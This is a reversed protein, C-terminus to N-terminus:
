GREKIATAAATQGQTVSQAVSAMPMPLEPLHAMDGAAYVGPVSTHGFPDVRVCGSGNLELGLQEAFPARQSMMPMIFIGGVEISEEASEKTSEEGSARGITLRLGSGDPLREVRQLKGEAIRAGLAGLAERDADALPTSDQVVVLESAIPKVMPGIHPAVMGGLLAIPQGAFEHAHCLPCQAALTGWAEALGPVDPVEDRLGTALVVANALVSDGNDLTLEFRPLETPASSRPTSDSSSGGVQAIKVVAASKFSVTEYDEIQARVQRRFDAPAAGDFGAMNHMHEVPANRYESSDFVIAERHMRGLTLAAQLGAPGGGIVAIQIERVSM